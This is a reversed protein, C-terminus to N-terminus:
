VVSGFFLVDLGSGYIILIDGGKGIFILFFILVFIVDGIYVIDKLLFDLLIGEFEM